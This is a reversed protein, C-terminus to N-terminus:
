QNGTWLVVARELQLRISVPNYPIWEDMVLHHVGGGQVARHNKWGLSAFVRESHATSGLEDPFVIVLIRDAEYDELDSLQIGISHFQEGHKDIEQAIRVPPRLGLSRYMVYGANRAGYVRIEEPKIILLMIVENAFKSQQVLIRASEEEQEFDALWQEAQDSRQIYHALLRFQEKWGIEMWPIHVIPASLRLREPSLGLHRMHMDAAFVVEIGNVDLVSNIQEVTCGTNVYVATQLPKLDASQVYESTESIIVAPELGLLTLHAAYPALLVAVRQISKGNYSSPTEGTQQKFRRSLYFEDKYGVKQAIERLTSHRDLLLEKARHVRLRFLYETPSCGTLQKFLISYHSSSVGAIQALQERTIKEHFNNELYTISREMSSQEDAVPKADMRELLILLLQHFLIQNQVHRVEGEPMRHRYLKEALAAIESEYSFFHIQANSSIGSKQILVEEPFSRIQELTHITLKYAHLPNLHNAALEAEEHAPLLVASGKMLEYRQDRCTLVASGGAVVILVAANEKIRYGPQNTTSYLSEISELTYLPFHSVTWESVPNTNMIAGGYEDLDRRALRKYERM